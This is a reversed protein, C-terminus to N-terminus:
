LYGLSELLRQTEPDSVGRGRAELQKQVLERLRPLAEVLREAEETNLREVEGPDSELDYARAKRHAIWLAKQPWRYIAAARVRDVGHELGYASWERRGECEGDLCDARSVGDITRPFAELQVLELLTPGVDVNLVPAQVRLSPIEPGHILWGLKLQDEWTGDSHGLMGHRFLGEGHDTVIMWLPDNRGSAHLRDRLRSLERDLLQVEEAYNTRAQSKPPLRLEGAIEVTVAAPGDLDNDLRVSLPGRLRHSLEPAELRVGTASEALSLHHVMLRTRPWDDRRAERIPEIQLDTGGPPVEVSVQFTKRSALELEAVTVEGLRLAVDPEPEVPHYPEHPDSLHIWLFAPEDTLAAMWELADDVVDPARRFARRFPDDRWLAVHDFGQTLQFQPQLVGLAPFAATKYGADRFREALTVLEEPVLDGNAMVGNSFPSTGTFMATHAPLTLPVQTYAHEFVTGADGLEKLFPTLGADPNYLDIYHTKLTDLTVLVVTRPRQPGCSLLALTLSLCAALRLLQASAPRTRRSPAM